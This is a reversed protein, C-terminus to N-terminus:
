IYYVTCRTQIACRFWNWPASVDYAHNFVAAIQVSVICVDILHGSGIVHDRILPIVEGCATAQVVVSWRGGDASHNRQEPQWSYFIAQLLFVDRGAAWVPMWVRWLVATLVECSFVKKKEKFKYWAICPTQCLTSAGRHVERGSIYLLFFFLRIGHTKLDSVRFGFLATSSTSSAVLTQAPGGIHGDSKTPRKLSAPTRDLKICSMPHFPAMKIQRSFWVQSNFFCIDPRVSALSCLVANYSKKSYTVYRRKPPCISETLCLCRNAPLKYLCKIDTVTYNWFELLKSSMPAIIHANEWTKAYLVKFHCFM